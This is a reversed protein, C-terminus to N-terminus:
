TADFGKLAKFAEDPVPPVEMPQYNLNRYTKTYSIVTLPYETTLSLFWYIGIFYVALFILSVLKKIKTKM